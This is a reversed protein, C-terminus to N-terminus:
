CVAVVGPPYGSNQKESRDGDQRRGDGCSCSYIRGSGKLNQVALAKGLHEAVQSTQGLSRPVAMHLTWQMRGDVSVQVAAAGARALGKIPSPFCSGDVFIDGQLGEFGDEEAADGREVTYTYDNSARPWEEEPHPFVGTTWFRNTAEARRAEEFFWKPVARRVAEDTKRCGFARHHICDGQEGCLPCEDAVDYGLEVARGNTLLAGACGSKFCGYELATQNKQNGRGPTVMDMCVRKGAFQPDRTAWKAGVERELQRKGGALVQEWVLAPSTGTLLINDGRDDVLTFANAVKWGIRKLSLVMAGLPGRVRAWPSVKRTGKLTQNGATGGIQRTHRGECELELDRLYEESAEWCRRLDPLGLYKQGAMDRDVGARWVMRAYMNVPALEYRLTPAGNLLLTTKLSRLRGGPKMVTASLQRLRKVERDDLGNVAAGFTAAPLLGTTVVRGARHGIANRLNRM